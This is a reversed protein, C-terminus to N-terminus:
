QLAILRQAIQRFAALRQQIGIEDLDFCKAWILSLVPVVNETTQQDVSLSSLASLVEEAESDYEDDPSGAEILGEVDEERLIDQIHVLSLMM